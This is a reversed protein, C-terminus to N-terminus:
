TERFNRGYVWGAPLPDASKIKRCESGNNIWKTGFQSNKEGAQHKMASFTEKRKSIAEKTAARKVVSELHSRNDAFNTKTRVGSWPNRRNLFANKGGLVQSAYIAEENTIMGSLGRWAILDEEKGYQEYLLRHAEAHEEVTLEVLNSSDNTGGAHIPIIHHIHKMFMSLM